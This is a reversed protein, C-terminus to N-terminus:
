FSSVGLAELLFAARGWRSKPGRLHITAMQGRFQFVTLQHRKFGVVQSPERLGESTTRYPASRPLVARSAGHPHTCDWRRGANLSSGWTGMFLGACRTSSKENFIMVMKFFINVFIFLFNKREGYYEASLKKSTSQCLLEQLWRLEARATGTGAGWPGCGARM